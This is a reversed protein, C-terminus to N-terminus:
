AAAVIVICSTQMVIASCPQFQLTTSRILEHIGLANTGDAAVHLRTRTVRQERESDLRRPSRASLNAASTAQTMLVDVGAIRGRLHDVAYIMLGAGIPYM